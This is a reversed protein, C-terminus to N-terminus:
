PRADQSRANPSRVAGGPILRRVMTGAIAAIMTAVLTSKGFHVKDKLPDREALVVLLKRAMADIVAVECSLRIDRIGAALAPTSDFHRQTRATLAHLCALLQPTSSAAGLMEPKAGAAALMDQPVYVRDLNRYDKGCDQTHNVIQLVACLVDSEAWTSRDEGHVDLVFRGVPMASYACYGILEDWDAYRHKTVDQRFAKLLDLAHVPSLKRAALQDRLRVSLADDSSAGTLSAEMADLGRLKEDAPLSAHDAIDDAARAFDYFAMIVPRHRASVLRSAVPFNEDRHGKGSRYEASQVM